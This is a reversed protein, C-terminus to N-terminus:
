DAAKSKLQLVTLGIVLLLYLTTTATRFLFIFLMPNSVNQITLGVMLIGISITLLLYYLKKPNKFTFAGKKMWFLEGHYAKKVLKILGFTFMIVSIVGVYLFLEKRLFAFNFAIFTVMATKYEKLGLFLFPSFLMCFGMLLFLALYLKMLTVNILISLM